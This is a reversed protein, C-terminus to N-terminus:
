LCSRWISEMKLYQIVLENGMHYGYRCMCRDYCMGPNYLVIIPSGKHLYHLQAKHHEYEWGLEMISSKLFNLCCHWSNASFTPSVSYSTFLNSGVINMSPHAAPSESDFRERMIFNFSSVLQFPVLFSSIRRRWFNHLFFVREHLSVTCNFHIIRLWNFFFYAPYPLDKLFKFEKFPCSISKSTKSYWKGPMFASFSSAVKVSRWYFAVIAEAPHYDTHTRGLPM